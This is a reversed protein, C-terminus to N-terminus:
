APAALGRPDRESGELDAEPRLARRAVRRRPLQEEIRAADALGLQEERVPLRAERAPGALQGPVVERRDHLADLPQELEALEHEPVPCLVDGEALASARGAPPMRVAPRCATSRVL